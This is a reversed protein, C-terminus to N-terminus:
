RVGAEWVAMSPLEPASVAISRLDLVHSLLMGVEGPDCVYHSADTTGGIGVRVNLGGPNARFMTEDTRDDGICIRLDFPGEREGIFALVSGKDWAVKPRIELALKGARLAVSPLFESLCRRAAFLLAGHDSVRVMRYHLTASLGKNEVWAGTWRKSVTELKRCAEAIRPKLLLADPHVFDISPGKIELGHNGAFTVDLPLRERCDALARGSIVALSLNETQGIRRLIEMMGSGVAVSSPSECIPCLTGDLDTAVLIRGARRLADDIRGLDAFCHKM